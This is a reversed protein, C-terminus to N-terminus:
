FIDIRHELELLELPTSSPGVPLLAPSIRLTRESPRDSARRSIVVTIVVVIVITIPRRKIALARSCLRLTESCLPGAKRGLRFPCLSQPLPSPNAPLPSYYYRHASGTPSIRSALTIRLVRHSRAVTAPFQSSAARAFSNFIVARSRAGSSRSDGEAITSKTLDAM